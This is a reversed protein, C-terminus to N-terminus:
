RVRVTPGGPSCNPNPSRCIGGPGVNNALRRHTRYNPVGGMAFPGGGTMMLASSSSSVENPGDTGGQLPELTEVVDSMLPRAKPNQSLCYYALSCAKQAARVSYQNELRPDIIQLLKRKDNLKPRAWDVLNQEKSPRTKDVSKRGTLLELLVVGFSYVDSRATLHGTMVYEPAAYGYTGMVRTSVHTEDGQPGAKALGFDSLKATYDSDLLINSTKFDRYIVPREANHLFALGKAAGLAIMMRTSWSLPVTVKRFLHNELSGRFMFEYVLLRHDEECCYGILKVLNPHRLQGLFNVETLWERHGQLGEKNLVKVAVPLSKLGVRVNEDIYGKYVTGFGGEGLIYDSRFSKTITELEYLTFAIVHTYLISNKRFDEFSRPTSSDSLDSISRNHKKESTANKAGLPSLMHLQQVQAHANSVVASEERTGCNGM